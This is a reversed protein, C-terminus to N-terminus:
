RVGARRLRQLWEELGPYTPDLKRVARVQELAEAVMGRREYAEALSVRMKVDDPMLRVVTRYVQLAEAM